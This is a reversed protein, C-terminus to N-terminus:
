FLLQAQLRVFVEGDDLSPLLGYNPASVVVSSSDAQADFCYTVDGTLKFAHSQPFVYYNVGATLLHFDADNAPRGKDPIIHEFRAYPELSDTAFFGGMVYYAMDTWAPAADPTQRTRGVLAASVNWGNGVVQVDGTYSFLEDEQTSGGTAGTHGGREYHLAGGVLAGLEAGRFSTFQEFQKWDGAIKWDARGTLGYDAEAPDVFTTNATRQGDSFMGRLRFDEGKWTARVGDGYTLSYYNSILSRDATLLKATSEVEDQMFPLKMQGFTVNFQDTFAHDVFGEILQMTGADNFSTWLKYTTKPSGAYGTFFLYTRRNSFGNTFDDQDNGIERWNMTYRFLIQGTINLRFNKGADEIYAGKPGSGTTVGGAGAVPEVAGKQEDVLVDGAAQGSMVALGAALWWTGHWVTM